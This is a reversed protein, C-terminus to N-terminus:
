TMKLCELEEEGGIWVTPIISMICILVLQNLVRNETAKLDEFKITCASHDDLDNWLFKLNKLFVEKESVPKLFM